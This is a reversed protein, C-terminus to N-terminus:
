GSEESHLQRWQRLPRQGRPPRPRDALGHQRHGARLGLWQPGLGGGEEVGRGRADLVAGDPRDAVEQVYLAGLRDRALQGLEQVPVRHGPLSPRREASTGSGSTPSPSTSTLTLAALMLGSSLITRSPSNLRSSFYRVVKTSPWSPAPTTVLTPAATRSKWTPSSTEARGRSRRIPVKACYMAISWSSTAGLGAESVM